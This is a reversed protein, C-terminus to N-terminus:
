DDDGPVYAIGHPRSTTTNGTGCNIPHFAEVSRNEVNIVAVGRTAQTAGETTIFAWKNNNNFANHGTTVGPVIVKTVTGTELDVFAATANAEARLGVILTKEDHSMSLTDPQAGIAITQALTDTTLDYVKVANESRVSVYARSGNHSVHVESPERGVAIRRLQAGTALDLEVISGQKV